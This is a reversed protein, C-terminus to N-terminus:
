LSLYYLAGRRAILLIMKSGEQEAVISKFHEVNEVTQNNIELIVDGERLGSYAAPSRALIDKVLVGGSGSKLGLQRAERRSINEVVVGEIQSVWEDSSESLYVYESPTEGITLATQWRRGRRVYDITVTKGSPALAIRHRLRAASDVEHGDLSVIIDGRQLGAKEGPGGEIVDNVLAGTIGDAEFARAIDPNLDQYTIGAWGRVFRGRDIIAELVTRAMNSPIAFGIGQYGGSRSFIATNVGILNGQIDVLAGGSNGPNIAADTQIFDEYEAIGVNARGKASIIGMTVTQGIGFPNGVALVVDGIQASDSDGFQVAPFDEGKIKLVAVDTEPDTGVLQATYEEGSARYVLVETAGEVVHNNTVIYGDPSVIVGSGLSRERRERPVSFFRRGFFDFFPDSGFPSRNIRDRVIRVSSINVVAPAVAEAVDSFSWDEGGTLAPPVSIPREGQESTSAPVAQGSDAQNATQQPAIEVTVGLALGVMFCLVLGFIILGLTHNRTM